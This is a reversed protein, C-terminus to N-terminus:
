ATAPIPSFGFSLRSDQHTLLRDVADVVLPSWQSGRGLRLETMAQHLPLAARYPRDSTMADLADAVAVIQAGFPIKGAALGHPYGRGDIREHHALVIARGKRYQPFKALVEYGLRPHHQMLALEAPTLKGDKLLVSDPLGVKGIDHVRAALAIHAVEDPAVGLASGIVVVNAAVRRSHGATYPDRRDVMDAIAEVAAITQESLAVARKTALYVVATPGVMLLPAWSHAIAVAATIFGLLYLAAECAVDLRQTRLWVQYPNRGSHLGVVVAVLGTQTLYMTAAALPMAWADSPVLVTPPTDPRLSYLVIAALSTAIMMQATNFLSDYAGRRRRGEPNRRLALTGNGLAVSLGILAIAAPAPFLLLTAFYAATAPYTKFRPTLQVPFHTATAGLLVLLLALVYDISLSGRWQALSLAELGVAAAASAAVFVAIRGGLGSKLRVPAKRILM